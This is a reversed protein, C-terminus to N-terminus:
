GGTPLAARRGARDTAAAAARAPAPVPRRRTPRLRRAPRAWSCGARGGPDSPRVAAGSLRRDRHSPRSSSPPEGIQGGGLANVVLTGEITRGAPAGTLATITGTLPASAGAALAITSNDVDMSGFATSTIADVYDYTTTGAPVAFGDVLAVWTGAAPNNVAVQEEATSGASQATLVCSGSTCNFLFLDLDAGPDSANGIKVRLRSAGAPVSIPFQQQQLDSITPTTRKTSALTADLATVSVAAGSNTLTWSVPNAEGAVVSPLTTVAPAVAVNLLGLQLTFPNDLLPSTRRSEVEFEWIGPIPNNYTRHTQNCPTTSFNTYCNLSSTDEINFGYPMFAIFRTQSGAALGSLQADLAKTGPPVEVYVHITRNRQVTASKTRSFFNPALMQNAVEIAASLYADVGKTAAYDIALLSSFDGVGAATAKVKFTVPTNLELKVSAPGSFTGDNNLWKLTHKQLGAAGSLRTITVPYRVTQGPRQGGSARLCNNFIGTGSNPTALFGSLATCVPATITYSQTVPNTGLIAWAGVVDVLGAGEGIAAVGPIHTASSMMSQRLQRPTIALGNAKAASILLAAAGATQPAAMSTGNLMAYGAPLAYGTEAVPQGAQWTPVSSIASGPASVQPKTGGDERPGRSSFNFLQNNASVESNYNALWTEKTVSAAVALADTAVSPDGVTNVGPGNNGASIVLQVGFDNILRDYLVARANNGDNLAPLGGISINVVDVHRNTVLEVVGDTLAVNSCSSSICARAAVLKAGPAAGNMAGGFLGRAATIGAVHTGHEAAAIDISVFDDTGGTSVPANDRWDVTFAVTERVDTAPNDTGFHGEDFAVGYPQMAPDDTFDQNNNTDVRVDHTAPDYLVGWSDSTDGDRNVDGGLETVSFLSEVLRAVRYNGAPGTWTTGNFSFSPGSVATQMRVWEPDNETTAVGNFWDIAKREGTTTTQLAPHDIDIGSDVIGITVGRGDWTPHAQRFAVAKTDRTPMFPNSDPTAASPGAVALAASPAATGPKAEPRPNPLPIMEDLDIAVVGSNASVKDVSGTPVRASVYGAVDSTKIIAGGLARIQAAVASAGQKNTAIAVTVFAKNERQAKAL